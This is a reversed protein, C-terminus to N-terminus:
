IVTLAVLLIDIDRTVQRILVKLIGARVVVVDHTSDVVGARVLDKSTGVITGDESPVEFSTENLDLEVILVWGACAFVLHCSDFLGFRNVGHKNHLLFSNQNCARCILVKPKPIESVHRGTLVQDSFHM